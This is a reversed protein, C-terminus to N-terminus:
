CVNLVVLVNIACFHVNGKHLHNQPAPTHPGALEGLAQLQQDVGGLLLAAADAPRLGRKM